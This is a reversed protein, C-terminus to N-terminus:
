IVAPHIHLLAHSILQLSPPFALNAVLGKNTRRRLFFYACWSWPVRRFAVFRSRPGSAELMWNGLVLVLAVTAGTNKPLLILFCVDCVGACRCVPDALGCVNIVNSHLFPWSAQFGVHPGLATPIRPTLPWCGSTAAMLLCCAAGDCLWFGGRGEERLM